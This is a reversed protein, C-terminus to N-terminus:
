LFHVSSGTVQSYRSNGNKEPAKEYGCTPLIDSLVSVKALDEPTVNKDDCIVCKFRTLTCITFRKEEM